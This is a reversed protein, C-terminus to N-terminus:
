RKVSKSAIFGGDLVNETYSLHKEFLMVVYVVIVPLHLVFCAILALPIAFCWTAVLVSVGDYM